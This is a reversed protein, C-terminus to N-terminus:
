RKTAATQNQPTWAVTAALGTTLPVLPSWDLYRVALTNDMVSDHIDGLRSPGHSPSRKWGVMSALLRWLEAVSTGTMSSVNLTMKSGRRLAQIIAQAMDTVYIFDRTQDGDGHIVPDTGHLFRSLFAPVVAGEGETTQRPGFINAPRIITYDLNHLECLLKVYHEATLKSLGYPSRPMTPHTECIPLSQPDGYVAASSITIVKRAGFRAAELVVKCTGGINTSEDSIPDCISAPVSVQAALHIVVEPTGLSIVPDLSHRIDAQIFRARPNVNNLSGTSLNDVVLVEHGLEILRDVVHSGLFGAGGTVM